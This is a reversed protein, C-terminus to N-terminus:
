KKLGDRKKEVAKLVWDAVKRAKDDEPVQQYGFHTRDSM